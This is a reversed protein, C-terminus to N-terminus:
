CFDNHLIYIEYIHTFVYVGYKFIMTSIYISIDDVGFLACKKWLFVEQLNGAVHADVITVGDVKFFCM